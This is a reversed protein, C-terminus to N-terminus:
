RKARIRQALKVLDHLSPKGKIHRLAYFLDMVLGVAREREMKESVLGPIFALGNELNKVFYSAGGPKFVNKEYAATVLARIMDPYWTAPSEQLYTRLDEYNIVSTRLDDLSLEKM